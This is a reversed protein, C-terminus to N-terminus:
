LSIPTPAQHHWLPRGPLSCLLVCALPTCTYAPAHSHLPWQPLPPMWPVKPTLGPPPCPLRSRPFDPLPPSPLPRRTFSSLQPHPGPDWMRRTGKSFNRGPLLSSLLGTDRPDPLTLLTIRPHSLPHYLHRQEQPAAQVRRLRETSPIRM